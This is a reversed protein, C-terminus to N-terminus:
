RQAGRPMPLVVKWKGGASVLKLTEKDDDPETYCYYDENATRVLGTDTLNALEIGPRIVM